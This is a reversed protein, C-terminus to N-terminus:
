RIVFTVSVDATIDQTGAEVPTSDAGKALAQFPMPQDQSQETVSSVPGVGFGGAQGLAQAKARADDVAKGLAQRYAADQDKVGLTPGSVTNAGAAVAADILGGADAIAATASVSDDATYGKVDGNQDTQPSLSVQQTQLDDGNAAKMAAIVKNMLTSNQALADAATAAQTHVGATVTAQDPVLTVVGHGVTTVTDPTASDGRAAEPRGVGALVAIAVAAVAVVIVIPLSLRM